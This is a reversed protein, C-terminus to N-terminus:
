HSIVEESATRGTVEVELYEITWRYGQQFLDSTVEPGKLAESLSIRLNLGGHEDLQPLRDGTIDLQIPDLPSDVRHLEVLNGGPRAAITVSRAPANIKALLRAREIKFPLVAAPLQFRLEQEMALNSAMTPRAVGRGLIRICALLPGPITVQAGPAPRELQLPVVLLASGITRAEPALTFHLDAPEAWVMLVNHSELTRIASQRLLARYLQQRRQQRDNLIGAALFQGEPLVDGTGARFSGDPQLRVALNRGAATSLLADAFGHFPGAELRGEVGEQSFHAVATLPRELPLTFQFPAMRVGVPLALNEWHWADRDTLLFRRTRGKLGERDLDFLGGEDAGAPAPGPDPRYVALMGHVPAEESGTNAEVVQFVAVTAPVARRSFQGMGVFVAMAGLAAAPALWGLLEPRGSKRLAFGVGLVVVLFAGFVLGVTGRSIVSYGIEEELAPRFEKVDFAENEQPPQLVGGMWELPELPVPLNPYNKQYPSPLDGGRGSFRRPRFWARPGLTSFVVKGRGVSRSFWAPWGNVTHAAHEGAPLLVRVFDVPQEHLQLEDARPAEKGQDGASATQALPQMEIRFRTLRVRDVVQFDLADGLLPALVEPDVLDLMVWVKGGQELWRRLAQVFACDRTLRTSAIVFHDIGDFAEPTPPLFDPSVEQIQESLNRAHRFVLTLLRAEAARRDPNPIAGLPLNVSLEPDVLLATFPDRLEQLKEPSSNQPRAPVRGEGPGAKQAPPAVSSARTRSLYAVSRSRVVEQGVSPPILEEKGGSLDYLFYDIQRWPRDRNLEPKPVPGGLLWSRLKSRAPVWIDRGYQVDPEDQYSFLVRAQRDV